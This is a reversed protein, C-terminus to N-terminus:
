ATLVAEIDPRSLADTDTLVVIRRDPGPLCGVFAKFGSNDGSHSFIPEGKLTGLFWGYGYSQSVESLGVTAHESLMLERWREDLVQGARLADMWAVMDGATSWVDGAGMGVSDLDFSPAPKGDKDHGQAVDRRDGPSGAFTGALGAPGFVRDALFERYPQDGARQVVHALLVYGPSSYYYGEHTPPELRFTALLEAPDMGRCLDIMPYDEWHGLGSTHSLLHHLTIHGWEPPCGDVWKRVPDDLQVTGAQALVLVATATFQKSVSALQYRTAATHGPALQETVVEDGQKVLFVGDVM